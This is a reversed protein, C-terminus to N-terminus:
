NEGETQRGDSQERPSIELRFRRTRETHVAEPDIRKGDVEVAEGASLRGFKPGEPVGLTAAREPDFRRERARLVGDDREVGIAVDPVRIM